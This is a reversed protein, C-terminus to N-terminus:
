AARTQVPLVPLDEFSVPEDIIEPGCEAETIPDCPRRYGLFGRVLLCHISRECDEKGCGFAFKHRQGRGNKGGDPNSEKRKEGNQSEM